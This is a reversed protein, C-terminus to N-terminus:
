YRLLSILPGPRKRAMVEELYDLNMKILPKPMIAIVHKSQIVGYHERGNLVGSLIVIRCHSKMGASLREFQELFEPGSMLPMNVDLLILDPAQKSKEPVADLRKLYDLASVPSIFEIVNDAFGYHLIMKKNVFNDISDDDILLVNRKEKM